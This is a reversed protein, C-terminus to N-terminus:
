RTLAGFRYPEVRYRERLLDLPQDFDQWYDWARVSPDITMFASRRVAELAWAPDFLGQESKAVPTVRLGCHFQLLVFVVLSFGDKARCGAMFCGAAVESRPDTGYGSFVHCLDHRIAWDAASGREGPLAFGNRELEEILAAGLTNPPLQRLAAYRAALAPERRLGFRWAVFIWLVKALGQERVRARLEDIIWMRPMLHRRLRLHEREVWLRLDVLGPEDVELLEALREIRALRDADRQRDFLAAVIALRVLQVRLGAAPLPHEVLQDPALPQLEDTPPVSARGGTHTWLERLAAILERTSQPIPGTPAIVGLLARLGLTLTDASPPGQELGAGLRVNRADIHVISHISM